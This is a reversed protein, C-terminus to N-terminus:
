ASAGSPPRRRGNASALPDSARREREAALRARVDNYAADKAIYGSVTLDSLRKLADGKAKIAEILGAWRAVVLKQAEVAYRQENLDSDEALLSAIANAAIPKGNITEERLANTKEATLLALIGELKNLEESEAIRFEIAEMMYSPHREWADDLRHRDPTLLARLRNFDGM